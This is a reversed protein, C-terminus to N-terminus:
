STKVARKQRVQKPKNLKDSHKALATFEQLIKHEKNENDMAYLLFGNLLTDNITIANHAIFIDIIEQQRQQILEDLKLKEKAIKEILPTPAKPM